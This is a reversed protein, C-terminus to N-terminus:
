RFMFFFSQQLFSSSQSPSFGIVKTHPAVHKKVADVGESFASNSKSYGQVWDALDPYQSKLTAESQGQDCFSYVASSVVVDLLPQDCHLLWFVFLFITSKM